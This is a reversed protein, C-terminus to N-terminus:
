LRASEALCQGLRSTYNNGVGAVRRAKIHVYIGRSNILETGLGNPVDKEYYALALIYEKIKLSEPSSLV